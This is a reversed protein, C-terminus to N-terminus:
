PPEFQASNLFFFWPITLKRQQVISIQTFYELNFFFLIRFLFYFGDRLDLISRPVRPNTTSCKLWEAVKEKLSSIM